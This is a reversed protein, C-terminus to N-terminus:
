HTTDFCVEEYLADRESAFKRLGSSHLPDLCPDLGISEYMTRHGQVDKMLDFGRFWIAGYKLLEARIMEKNEVFYAAGKANDAESARLELPCHPVSKAMRQAEAVDIRCLCSTIHMTNMNYLYLSPFLDSFDHLENLTTSIGEHSHNVISVDM